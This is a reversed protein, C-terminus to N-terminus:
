LGAPTINTDNMMGIEFEHGKAIDAAVILDFRTLNRGTSVDNGTFSTLGGRTFTAIPSRNGNPLVFLLGEPITTVFDDGTANLRNYDLGVPIERIAAGNYFSLLGNKRIEEMAADAIGNFTGATNVWNAFGNIQSVTAYAGVISVPGLRRVKRMVADLDSKSINAGEAFYKVGAAKVASYIKKMVYHTAKNMIDTRVMQMGRNEEDLNGNAIKRYDNQFGGSVTVGEVPYVERNLMPFTVDGNMAQIRAGGGVYNYVEREITEDMPLAQYNGFIGLLKAEEVVLPEMIVRRIQNIESVANYDGGMAREGLKKIYEVSKDGKDGFKAIDEGNSMASYVEVVPSERRINGNVVTDKRASNLEITYENM